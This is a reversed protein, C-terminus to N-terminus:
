LKCERTVSKHVRKAIDKKGKWVIEKKESKLKFLIITVGFTHLLFYLDGPVNQTLKM